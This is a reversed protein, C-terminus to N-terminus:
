PRSLLDSPDGLPLALGAVFFLSRDARRAVTQNVRGLADRFTRGLSTAPHVGLGTENSVVITLGPRRALQDALETAEDVIEGEDAGTAMLNSTWLTLCDVILPGDGVTVVATALDLPEEVVAWGAPRDHRHREIRADMDADGGPEATVLITVASGDLAAAETARRVAFASKGSRAGGVFFLFREGDM